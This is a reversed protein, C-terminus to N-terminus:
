SLRPSLFNVPHIPEYSCAMSPPFLYAMFPISTWIYYHPRSFLLPRSNPCDWLYCLPSPNAQLTVPAMIVSKTQHVSTLSFINSFSFLPHHKVSSEQVSGSANKQSWFALYWCSPFAMRLFQHTSVGTNSYPPSGLLGKNRSMVCRLASPMHLFLILLYGVLLGNDPQRHLM